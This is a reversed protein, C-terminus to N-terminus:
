TGYPAIKLAFDIHVGDQENWGKAYKNLRGNIKFYGKSSGDLYDILTRTDEQETIAICNTLSYSESSVSEETLGSTIWLNVDRSQDSGDWESVDKAPDVLNVKGLPTGCVTAYIRIPDDGVNEVTYPPSIVDGKLELRDEGEATDDRTLTSRDFVVTTGYPNLFATVKAPVIVSVPMPLTMADIDYGFAGGDDAAATACTIGLACLVAVAGLFIRKFM